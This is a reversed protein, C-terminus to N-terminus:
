SLRRVGPPGNLIFSRQASVDNVLAGRFEVPEVVRSLGVSAKRAEAAKAAALEPRVESPDDSADAFAHIGALIAPNTETSPQYSVMADLDDDPSEALRKIVSAQDVDGFVSRREESM